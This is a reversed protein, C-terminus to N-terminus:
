RNVWDSVEEQFWKTITDNEWFRKWGEKLDKTFRQWKGGLNLLLSDFKFGDLGAILPKHRKILPTIVVPQREQSWQVLKYGGLLGAALGLAGGVLGPVVALSAAKIGAAAGGVGSAGLYASAEKSFENGLHWMGDLTSQTAWDNHNVILDPKIETIFGTERSLIHTAQEVEVPGFIDNYSDYLYCVDYPKIAPNGTIVIEGKYVDRLSRMLLGICYRRAFFDGYCSYYQANMVRTDKDEINDDAKMKLTEIEAEIAEAMQEQKEAEQLKYGVADDFYTLEVANHTGHSSARINNAIIHNDSTLMWYRRIPKFRQMKLLKRKLMGRYQEKIYAALAPLSQGEEIVEQGVLKEKMEARHRDAFSRYRQKERKDAWAEWAKTRYSERSMFRQVDREIHELTFKEGLALPRSWYSHTPPGFFMTYRQGYPVPLAILGPHRLEMEKFIDWITVHFPHYLRNDELSEFFYSMIGQVGIHDLFNAFLGGADKYDDFDPAFINDDQPKNLFRWKRLISWKADEIFGDILGKGGTDKMFATRIEGPEYHADRSWRGFHTVEPSCIM